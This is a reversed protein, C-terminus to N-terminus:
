TADETEIVITGRMVDVCRGGIEVREVKGNRKRVDLEITSPRGMEYGQRVTVPLDLDPEPRLSALLGGLAGSASGTAPDEPLNDLPAFMRAQVTLPEPTLVTYLFLSLRIGQAPVLADAREFAATNPRALALTALDSVELAAFPLGVSIFTPNHNATRIDHTNLSACPAILAPDLEPGESFPAPATIRSGAIQDGERVLKIPVVGAIEEFYLADGVPRGFLESHRALVYGTGVNPHGAFPIETTPTFIRVRASNAPDDPPLVFTSEAYNFETAIAQMQEVSLGRADLVVALPNGGFRVSTFVDVTVFDFHTM